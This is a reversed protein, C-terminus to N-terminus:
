DNMVPASYTLHTSSASALCLVSISFAPNMAFFYRKSREPVPRSTGAGRQGVRGRVSGVRCAIAHAVVARLPRVVGARDAVPRHLDDGGRDHQRETQQEQVRAVLETEAPAAVPRLRAEEREVHAQEQRQRAEGREDARQAAGFAPEALLEDIEPLEALHEGHQDGGPEEHEADLEDADVDRREEVYRHEHAPEALVRPQAAQYEREHHAHHREHHELDPELHREVLPQPVREGPGAVSAPFDIPGPLALTLDPTQTASRTESNWPNATVSVGNMRPNINRPMKRPTMMPTSGPSPAALPMAIRSGSVNVIGGVDAIMMSEHM